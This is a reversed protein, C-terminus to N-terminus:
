SLALIRGGILCIQGRKCGEEVLQRSNRGDPFCVSASDKDLTLQVGQGAIKPAGAFPPM